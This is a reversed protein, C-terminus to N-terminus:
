KLGEIFKISNPTEEFKRLIKRGLYLWVSEYKKSRLLKLGKKQAERITTFQYSWGSEGKTNTVAYWCKVYYRPYRQVKKM